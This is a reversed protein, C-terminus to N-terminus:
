QSAQSNFTTDYNQQLDNQIPIAKDYLSRVKNKDCHYPTYGYVGLFAFKLM